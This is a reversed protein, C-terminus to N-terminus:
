RDIPQQGQVLGASACSGQLRLQRTVISQLGVEIKPAVNGVLTVTAGKRVSEVALAVAPGTGVCELAVDAGRGQTLELIEAGVGERKANFVRTAGMKQALALRTDDLDLVIATGVGALLAAQLTLLGIM